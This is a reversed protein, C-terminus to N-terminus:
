QQMDDCRVHRTGRSRIYPDNGLLLQKELEVTRAKLLYAAIYMNDCLKLVNISYMVTTYLTFLFILHTPFSHNARLLLFPPRRTGAGLQKYFMREDWRVQLCALGFKAIISV